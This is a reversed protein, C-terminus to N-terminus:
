SKSSETDIVKLIGKILENSNVFSDGCEVPRPAIQFMPFIVKKSENVKYIICTRETLKRYYIIFICISM